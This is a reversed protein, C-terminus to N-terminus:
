KAFYETKLWYIYIPDQFSIEGAMIAKLYNLQQTALTDTITVFLLSIHCRNSNKLIAKATINQVSFSTNNRKRNLNNNTIQLIDAKHIIYYCKIDGVGLLTALASKLLFLNLFKDGYCM